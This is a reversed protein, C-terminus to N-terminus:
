RRRVEHIPDDPPTDGCEACGGPMFESPEFPHPLRGGDAPTGLPALAAELRALAEALADRVARMEGIARDLASLALEAAEEEARSLM